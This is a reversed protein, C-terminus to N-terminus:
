MCTYGIHNYLICPISLQINGFSKRLEKGGM